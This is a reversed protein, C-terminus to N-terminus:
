EDQVLPFLLTFQTGKGRRSDVSILAGHAEIVKKCIALGLGNGNPKTTYFPLFIKSLDEPPIGRGTDMIQVKIHRDNEWVKLIVVGGPPTAQIANHGLNILVEKIRDGDLCVPPLSEQVERHFEIRKERAAEEMVLTIGRLFENLNLRERKLTPTQFFNLMGKALKEMRFSEEEIVGLYKTAEGSLRAKRNLLRAFGHIVIGINKMEHAAFSYNKELSAFQEVKKEALRGERGRDSLYGVVLGALTLAPAELLVMWIGMPNSGWAMLFHPLLLIDVLVSVVLGGKLGFWLASLLIPILYLKGYVQHVFPNIGASYHFLTTGLIAALIMGWKFKKATVRSALL